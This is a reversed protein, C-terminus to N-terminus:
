YLRCWNIQSDVVGLCRWGGSILLGLLGDIVGLNGGEDRRVHLM